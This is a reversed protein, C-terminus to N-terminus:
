GKSILSEFIVQNEFYFLSQDGDSGHITNKECVNSRLFREM